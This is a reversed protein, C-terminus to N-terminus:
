GNEETAFLLVPCFSSKNLYNLRSYFHIALQSEKEWTVMHRTASFITGHDPLKCPTLTFASPKM